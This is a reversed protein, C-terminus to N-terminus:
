IVQAINWGMERYKPDDPVLYPIDRSSNVPTNQTQFTINKFKLIRIVKLTKNQRSHAAPCFNINSHLPIISVIKNCLLIELISNAKTAVGSGNILNHYEIISKEYLKDRFNNIDYLQPNYLLNNNVTSALNTCSKFISRLDSDIQDIEAELLPLNKCKYM